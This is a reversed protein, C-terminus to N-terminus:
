VQSHVSEKIWGEVGKGGSIATKAFKFSLSELLSGCQIIVLESRKPAVLDECINILSTKLPFPFAGPKWTNEARPNGSENPLLWTFLCLKNMNIIKSFNASHETMLTILTKLFQVKWTLAPYSQSSHSGPSKQSQKRSNREGIWQRSNVEFCM